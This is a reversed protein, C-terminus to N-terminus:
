AKESATATKSVFRRLIKQATKLRDNPLCPYGLVLQAGKERSLDIFVKPSASPLRSLNEAEMGSLCDEAERMWPGCIENAAELLCKEHHVIHASDALHVRLTALTFRDGSLVQLPGTLIFSNQLVVRRGTILDAEGCEDLVTSLLRIDGVRGRLSGSELYDGVQYPRTLFLVVGGLVSAILDKSVLLSAGAVAALPLSSTELGLGWIALLALVSFALAVNRVAVWVRQQHGLDQYKSLIIKRGIRGALLISGLLVCSLLVKILIQYTVM